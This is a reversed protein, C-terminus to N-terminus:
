DTSQNAILYIISRDFTQNLNRVAHQAPCAMGPARRRAQVLQSGGASHTFSPFPVLALLRYLLFRESQDFGHNRTIQNTSFLPDM